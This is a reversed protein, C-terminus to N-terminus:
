FTLALSPTFINLFIDVAESAFTTGTSVPLMTIPDRPSEAFRLFFRGTALCDEGVGFEFPRGPRCIGVRRTDSIRLGVRAEMTPTPLFTRNPSVLTLQL